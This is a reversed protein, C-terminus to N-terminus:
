NESYIVTVLYAGGVSESSSLAPAQFQARVTPLESSFSVTSVKPHGYADLCSVQCITHSHHPSYLLFQQHQNISPQEVLGLPEIVTATAAITASTQSPPVSLSEETPLSCLVVAMVSFSLIIKFLNRLRM